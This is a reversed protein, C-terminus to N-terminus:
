NDINLLRGDETLANTGALFVEALAAAVSPKFLHEIFGELDEIKKRHDFPNIVTTGRKELEEIVGIQRLASSDGIGVVADEPIMALMTQRAEQRSEAYWARIKRKELAKLTKGIREEM